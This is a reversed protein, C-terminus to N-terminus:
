QNNNSKKSFLQSLMIRMKLDIGIYIFFQISIAITYFLDFCSLLSEYLDSNLLFSYFSPFAPNYNKHYEDDDSEDYDFVQNAFIKVHLNVLSILSIPVKCIISIVTNIVLRRIACKKERETEGIKESVDNEPSQKAKLDNFEQRLRVTLIVEFIFIVVVFVIYNLIDSVANMILQVSTITSVTVVDIYLEQSMPYNAEPQDFNIEYKFYKAVSLLSSIFLTVGLYTKFHMKICTPSKTTTNEKTGGSEKRKGFFVPISKIIFALYTFSCMFRFTAVLCEKFIMKFLQIGVLKHIQPCFVEYPYFCESMWSLLQIILILLSFIAKACLYNYRKNHEKLLIMVVILLNTIAGILSVIYTSIKIGENLRKNLGIYDDIGWFSKISFRERDCLSKM